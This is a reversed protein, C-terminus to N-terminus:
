RPGYPSPQRIIAYGGNGTPLANVTPQGPTIAVYGGGGTPLYNTTPQGPTIAVYGGNGTPLLNTTQAAAAAVFVVSVALGVLFARM